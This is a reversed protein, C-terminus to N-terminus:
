KTIETVNVDSVDTIIHKPEGHHRFWTMQRKAYQRTSLVAQQIMEEKSCENKLFSIIEPVGIAKMVGGTAKIDLLHQVEDVAGQNLMIQFRKACNLYVKERPPLVHICSFDAAVIQKKPQHYFYSIPKGCSLQVELSRRLRQPDSFPCDKVLSKVEDIPMKRVKSRISADVDPIENVGEVLANLYLGTGGVIIPNKLQPIIEQIRQLWNALSFHTWADVEGYLYHPARKLEADDPRASLVKLDKYVQIADGNVVAGDLSQALRVALESKGSATPGGIVFVKQKKM